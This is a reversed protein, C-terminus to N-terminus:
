QNINFFGTSKAKYYLYILVGLIILFLIGFLLSKFIGFGVSLNSKVLFVLTRLGIYVVILIVIGLIILPVTM